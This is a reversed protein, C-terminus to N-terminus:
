KRTPNSASSASCNPITSLTSSLRGFTSFLAYNNPAQPSTHEMQNEANIMEVTHKIWSSRRGSTFLTLRAYLSGSM